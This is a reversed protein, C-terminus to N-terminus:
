IAFRGGTKLIPQNWNLLSIFLITLVIIVVMTLLYIIISRTTHDGKIRMNYIRFIVYTNYAIYFLLFIFYIILFIYM